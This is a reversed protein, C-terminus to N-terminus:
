AVEENNPPALPDGLLENLRRNDSQVNRKYHDLCTLFSEFGWDNVTVPILDYTGPQIHLIYAKDLPEFPVTEGDKLQIDARAYAICQLAFNGYIRNSTKYDILVHGLSPVDQISDLRGAYRHERNGVVLEETISTPEYDTIYQAFGEVYPMLEDTVDIEEGQIYQEALAHVATGRAGAGDRAENPLAVLMDMAPGYGATEFVGTVQRLNRLAYDAVTRAAWRTLNKPIGNLATTVGVVWEGDIKYRHYNKYEVVQLGTSKLKKARPNDTM